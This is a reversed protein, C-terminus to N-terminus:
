ARAVGIVLVSALLVPLIVRAMHRTTITQM